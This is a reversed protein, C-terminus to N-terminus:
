RSSEKHQRNCASLVVGYIELCLLPVTPAGPVTHAFHPNWHLFSYFIYLQRIGMSQRCTLGPSQRYHDKGYQAWVTIKAWVIGM